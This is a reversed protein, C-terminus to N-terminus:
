VATPTLANFAIMFAKELAWDDCQISELCLPFGIPAVTDVFFSNETYFRSFGEQLGNRHDKSFDSADEALDTYFSISTIVFTHYIQCLVFQISEDCSSSFLQQITNPGPATVKGFSTVVDTFTINGEKEGASDLLTATARLGLDLELLRNVISSEITPVVTTATVSAALISLLLKTLMSLM